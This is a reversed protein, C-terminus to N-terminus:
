FFGSELIANNHGSDSLSIGNRNPQNLFSILGHREFSELYIQFRPTPLRSSSGSFVRLLMTETILFSPGRNDLCCLHWSMATPLCLSTRCRRGQVSLLAVSSYLCNSHLSGLGSFHKYLLTHSGWGWCGAAGGLPFHSISFSNGIQRKPFLSEIWAPLEKIIYHTLFLFIYCNCDTEQPM